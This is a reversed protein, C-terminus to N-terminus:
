QNYLYKKINDSYHLQGDTTVFIAEIDSTENILKLGKDLGLVFCSTSLCDGVVSDKCIITVSWLDNDVPYGTKSNLIHHYQINNYKFTREYSGSSVASLDNLSLYAIPKSATLDPNKVGTIFNKNKTKAGVCLINGGLDIIAKKVNQSILYEKIKDAIYGKAIAGLELTTNAPMNVTYTNDPNKNLTINKYDVHTLADKILSDEPVSPTDTNFNWLSSVSGITIDFAGDTLKSYEIGYEILKGLDYSVTTIEGRNLKSLESDKITRSFINEYYDCLSLANTLVEKKCNDYVKISVFTNLKFGEITLPDNNVATDEFPNSCGSILNLITILILLISIKKKM